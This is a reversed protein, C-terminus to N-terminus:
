ILRDSFKFCYEKTLDRNRGHVVGKTNILAFKRKIVDNKYQPRVRQARIEVLAKLKDEHVTFGKRIIEERWQKFEADRIGGNQVVIDFMLIYTKLDNKKISNTYLMAKNHIKLAAEVQLSIYEPALLMKQLEARWTAKFQGNSEYLNRIAWDVSVSEATQQAKTFIDQNFEEDDEDYISSDEDGSISRYNNVKSLVPSTIVQGTQLEWTKIMEVLSYARELSLNAKIVQPKSNKLASLLPQLSGTGLTQNLLGASLGMGDFNNSINKWGEPGEFSGSINLALALSRREWPTLNKSWSTNNFSLSSCFKEPFGASSGTEPKAPPTQNASNSPDELTGSTEPKCGGLVLLLMMFVATKKM